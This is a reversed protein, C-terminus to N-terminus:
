LSFHLPGDRPIEKEEAGIGCDVKLQIEVELERKKKCPTVQEMKAACCQFWCSLGLTDEDPTHTPPTLKATLQRLTSLAM